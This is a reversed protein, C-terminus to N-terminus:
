RYLCTYWDNILNHTKKILLKKIEDKMKFMIGIDLIFNTFSKGSELDLSGRERNSPIKQRVCCKLTILHWKNIKSRLANQILWRKLNNNSIGIIKLSVEMTYKILNLMNPKINLYKIGM